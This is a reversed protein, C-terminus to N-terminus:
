SRALGSCSGAADENRDLEEEDQRQIDQGWVCLAWSPGQPSTSRAVALFLAGERGPQLGPCASLVTPRGAYSGGAGARAAQPLFENENQGACPVHPRPCAPLPLQQSFDRQGDGARADEPGRGLPRIQLISNAGHSQGERILWCM